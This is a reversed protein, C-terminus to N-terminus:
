HSDSGADALRLQEILLSLREQEQQAEALQAQWHTITGEVAHVAEMGRSLDTHIDAVDKVELSQPSIGLTELFGHLRSVQSSYSNALGSWDTASQDVQTDTELQLLGMRILAVTVNQIDRDQIFLNIESMPAPRFM